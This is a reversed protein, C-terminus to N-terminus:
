TARLVSDVNRRTWIINHAMAPGQILNYAIQRLWVLLLVDPDVRPQAGMGAAQQLALEDADWQAGDLLSAVTDGLETHQTQMRRHLCAYVIDHHPLERPGAWEWDVIGTTAGTAPDALVNGPWFDGHVWGVSLTRGAWASRLRARLRALEHHRRTAPEVVRLRDDIWTRLLPADVLTTHATRHHLLGVATAADMAVRLLEAPDTSAPSVSRGPLAREVTYPSGDIQGEALRFPVLRAFDGVSTEEALGTLAGAERRQSAAGDPTSPIKLVAVPDKGAPGLMIVAVQTSSIVARQAVWRTPEASGVQLSVARLVDPVLNLTLQRHRRADYRRMVVPGVLALAGAARLAVPSM